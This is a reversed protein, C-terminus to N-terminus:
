HNGVAVLAGGKGHPGYGPPGGPGGPGGPPGPPGRGSGSGSGPLRHVKKPKPPLAAAGPSM